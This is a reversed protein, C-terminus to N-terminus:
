EAFLCFLSGDLVIRLLSGCFLGVLRAPTRDKSADYKPCSCEAITREEKLVHPRTRVATAYTEIPGSGLFVSSM